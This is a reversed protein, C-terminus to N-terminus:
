LSFSQLLADVRQREAQLTGEPGTCKLFYMGQPTEIVAADLAYGPQEGGQPGGMPGMTAMYTGTLEMRTVRLGNITDRSTQARALSDSGDPQRFQGAWRSLNEEVSGGGQFRLLACEAPGAPQTAGARWQTLRMNSAPPEEVWSAPAQWRLGGTDMAPQSLLPMGGGGPGQPIPPHDSPLGSPMQGQAGPLPPHDSPLGSPGGQGGPIPPHDAPLGSPTAGDGAAGMPMPPANQRVAPSSPVAQMGPDPQRDDDCAVLLVGGVVVVV